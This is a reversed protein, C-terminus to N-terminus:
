AAWLYSRCPLRQRGTCRRRCRRLQVRVAVAAGGVAPAGSSRIADGAKWTLGPPSWRYTELVIGVVAAPLLRPVIVTCSRSMLPFTTVPSLVVVTCNYIEVLGPPPASSFAVLWCAIVVGIVAVM